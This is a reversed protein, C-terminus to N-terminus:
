AERRGLPDTWGQQKWLPLRDRIWALVIGPRSGARTVLLSLMALEREPTPQDDRFRPDTVIGTCDDIREIQVPV